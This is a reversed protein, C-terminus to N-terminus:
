KAALRATKRALRDAAKKIEAWLDDKIGDLVTAQGADWAPRAFPQPGHNVTGFEQLHAHPVPGAGVFVEAAAKDDKFAKRHLGAQRKSLRTGVGISSKLDNGGTAPDDPARARMADAIPEARKLLVRRLVNRGTAKPLEGLAAELEQLGEIRVTQAMM